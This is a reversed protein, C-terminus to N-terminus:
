INDDTKRQFREVINGRKLERYVSEKNQLIKALFDRQNKISLAYLNKDIGWRSKFHSVM